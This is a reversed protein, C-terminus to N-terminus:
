DVEELAHRGVLETPGGLPDLALRPVHGVLEHVGRKGVRRVQVLPQPHSGVLGRGVGM